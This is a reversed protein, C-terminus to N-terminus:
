HGILDNLIKWHRKIQNKVKNNPMKNVALHAYSIYNGWNYSETKTWKPPIGKDPIYLRRRKAGKYSFKKYLRTTFIQGISKSSKLVGSYYQSRNYARKMKRYFSSLSSSKLYTNFGNFAFGLYELNRNPILKSDIVQYCKFKDNVKNFEFIQTKDHQVELKRELIKEDFLKIIDMTYKEDCVVIMDDSYRRYIGSFSSIIDNVNKDFDLMYINALVASIPSGQPIGKTRSPFKLNGNGIILNKSRIREIDKLDCYAIARQKRLHHIRKIERKKRIKSETETIIEKQFENFIENENVYSFRTINKFVNYEDDSLTTTQTEKVQYWAKKLLKHDLNDFFGKVDFTIAILREKESALIYNFVESAFDASSKHSSEEQDLNIKIRRYATVIDQLGAVAIKKEYQENLLKSYYSYICSDLHNAYYLERPKSSATRLKSKKGTVPDITKRFKRTISSRHIFPYFAHNKISKLNKVYREVWLRDITSLPLGIHPYRKLKFWDKEM